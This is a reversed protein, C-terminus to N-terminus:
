ITIDTLGQTTAEATSQAILNIMSDLSYGSSELEEEILELGGNAYEEFITIRQDDAEDGGSLISADEIESLALLYQFGPWVPSNSFYQQPFAKGTDTAGLPIRRKQKYGLAAAFMLLRWIEKFVPNEGTTLSKVLTEKNISRQVRRM